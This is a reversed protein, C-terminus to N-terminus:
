ERMSMNTQSPRMRTSSGLVRGPMVGEVTRKWWAAASPRLWISKMLWTIPNESSACVLLFPGSHNTLAPSFPDDAANHKARRREVYAWLVGASRPSARRADLGKQGAKFIKGYLLRCCVTSLWCHSFLIFDGENGRKYLPIFPSKIKQMQEALAPSKTSRSLFQFIEINAMYKQLGCPLRKDTM